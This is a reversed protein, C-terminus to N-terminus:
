GRPIGEDATLPRAQQWVTDFSETYLDFWGGEESRRVHLLPNASAPQGWIHPNVLLQDDYRFLSAYLTTAHLRISCGDVALLDLYYTLSARIKASLTGHLGEESDRTKVADSRPDGFCLRIEVGDAARRALMKATRPNTQAFFTGSFVLVDIRQDAGDLLTLWMDRPVSARNPYADILEISKLTQPDTSTPEPAPWLESEAVQLTAAIASRHKRHPQRGPTIWREVTKPDVQCTAALERVNVGRQRMVTRLRENVTKNLRVQTDRSLM